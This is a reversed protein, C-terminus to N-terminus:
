EFRKLEEILTAIGKKRYMESLRQAELSGSMVSRLRKDELMTRNPVWVSGDSFEVQQVVGTLSEVQLPEGELRSFQFSTTAQLSASQKAKISLPSPLLGAMYERGDRDRVLWALEVFRVERSGRNNLSFEPIRLEDGILNARGQLGEVPMGPYNLFAVQIERGGSLTAASRAMRVDLRPRSTEHALLGRMEDRLGESGSKALVQRFHQRDRRAELEWATLLRRSGIKNPGFFSLDEFLIGDLQVSVQPRALNAPLLLRLDVKVPFEQGPYVDLSPVSVSGRGGPAMEQSSVHLTIGRLRLRSNNKLRLSSRLDLVLAGARSTSRTEGWDSQAVSIPSDTPFDIRISGASQTEQAFGAVAFAFVIALKSSM